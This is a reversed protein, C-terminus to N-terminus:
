GAMVSSTFVLLNKPDFADIGAPQGDLLYSTALLGGGAYRRWFADDPTEFEARQRSLDVHIVRGHYGYRRM